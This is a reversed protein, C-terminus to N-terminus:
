DGRLIDALNKARSHEIPQWSVKKFLAVLALPMYTMTFLPFTFTYIMKKWWATHIRRWETVTTILGSLYLTAYFSFMTALFPGLVALLNGHVALTAVAAAGNILATLATVIIAPMINMCMDYCSFSGAGIGRVLRLGYRHFVQLYGKSWRLRQRWSQSFKVPQEDYLVAGPCYAVRRGRLINDVTFEIDETLTFYNWGGCESLAERSFLFGTGSVTCSSGLLMRPRNLYQAERLFWLSYGASIWNDGYNKSNRYSTIIAHGDSFTRNMEEIYTPSLVNDADFVFYGDFPSDPYDAAIRRLLEHLAYGKGVRVTSFREYVVAGASRALAATSDTCNDAMVFITILASDYTQAHISDILQTIVREENRASILVAYAHKKAPLHPRPRIFLPILIYLFQYSYCAFFFAAVVRNFLELKEM